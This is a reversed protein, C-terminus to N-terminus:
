RFVLVPISSHTLVKRTVSGLLMRALGRRGHSGICIADCKREKAADIIAQHPEGSMTVLPEFAIGAAKAAQEIAAVNRRAFERARRQLELAIEAPVPVGNRYPHAPLEEACFGTVKAGIEKAFAVGAAIAKASVASGDTPILIHKFM